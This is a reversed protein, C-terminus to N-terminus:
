VSNILFLVKVSPYLICTTACKIIGRMLMLAFNSPTHCALTLLTNDMKIKGTFCDSMPTPGLCFYFSMLHPIDCCHM